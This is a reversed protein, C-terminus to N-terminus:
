VVTRANGRQNEKLKQRQTSVKGQQLLLVFTYGEMVILLSLFSEFLPALRRYLHKSIQVVPDLRTQNGVEGTASVKHKVNCTAFTTIQILPVFSTNFVQHQCTRSKDGRGILNKSEKEQKTVLGMRKSDKQNVSRNQFCIHSFVTHLIRHSSVIRLNTTLVGSGVGKAGRPNCAIAEM